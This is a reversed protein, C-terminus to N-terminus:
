HSLPWKLISQLLIFGALELSSPFMIVFYNQRPDETSVVFYTIGYIDQAALLGDPADSIPALHLLLVDLRSYAQGQSTLPWPFCRTLVFILTWHWPQTLWLRMHRTSPPQYLSPSRPSLTFPDFNFAVFDWVFSSLPWDLGSSDSDLKM